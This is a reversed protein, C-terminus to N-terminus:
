FGNIKDIEEEAKKEATFDLYEKTMIFFRSEVTDYSAVKEANPTFFKQNIFDIDDSPTWKLGDGNAKLLAAIEVDSINPNFIGGPEKKHQFILAGARGKLFMVTIIWGKKEFAIAGNEKDVEIEKGYRKRCQELTEGLRASAPSVM